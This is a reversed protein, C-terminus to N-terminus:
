FAVAKPTRVIGSEPNLLGNFLLPNMCKLYKLDQEIMGETHDMKDPRTKKLKFSVLVEADLNFGFCKSDYEENSFLFVDCNPISSNEIYYSNEVASVFRCL